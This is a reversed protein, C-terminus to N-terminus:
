EVQTDTILSVMADYGFVQKTAEKTDNEDSKLNLSKSRGYCSVKKNDADVLCFGASVPNLNEMSLHEVFCPFIIIGNYEKIRVYKQETNM